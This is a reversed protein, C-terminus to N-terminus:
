MQSRSYKAGFFLVRITDGTAPAVFMIEILAVQM